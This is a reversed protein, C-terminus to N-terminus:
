PFPPWARAFAEWPLPSTVMRPFTLFILPHPVQSCPDTTFTATSPSRNSENVKLLKELPFEMVTFPEIGRVDGSGRERSGGAYGVRVAIHGCHCCIGLAGSLLVCGFFLQHRAPCPVVRSAPSPRGGPREAPFPLPFPFSFPLRFSTRFHLLATPLSLFFSLSPFPLSLMSFSIFFHFLLSRIPRCGGRRGGGTEGPGGGGGDERKQGRAGAPRPAAPGYRAPRGQSGFGRARGYECSGGSSLAGRCPPAAGGRSRMLTVEARGAGAVAAEPVGSGPLPAAWRGRAAGRSHRKRHPRFRAPRPRPPAPVACRVPVPHAHALPQGPSLVVSRPRTNLYAIQMHLYTIYYICPCTDTLTTHVWVCTLLM